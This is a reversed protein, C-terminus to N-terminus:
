KLDRGTDLHSPPSLFGCALAAGLADAADDPKPLEQLRLIQQVMRQVQKKDAKGYGSIVSKIQLPTFEVVPINHRAASLLIVGRAESVPMATKLNKLFFLKEVAVARPKWKKLLLRLDRELMLLRDGAGMGKPTEICGYSLCSFKSGTTQCIVGFGTTATGPDIGLIVSTNPLM